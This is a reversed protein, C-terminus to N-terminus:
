RMLSRVTSTFQALTLSSNIPITGKALRFVYLALGRMVSGPATLEQNLADQDFDTGTKATQVPWTRTATVGDHTITPQGYEEGAALAPKVEVIPLVLSRKVEVPNKGLNRIEKIAAGPGPAELIVVWGSLSAM